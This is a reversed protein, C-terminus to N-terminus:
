ACCDTSGRMQVSCFIIDVELSDIVVVVTGLMNVILQASITKDNIWQFLLYPVLCVICETMYLGTSVIFYPLSVNPRGM